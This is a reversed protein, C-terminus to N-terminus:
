KQFIIIHKFFLVKRTVEAKSWIQIAHIRIRCPLIIIKLFTSFSQATLIHDFLSQTLTAIAVIRKMKANKQYYKMFSHSHKVPTELCALVISNMLSNVFCNKNNELIQSVRFYINKHWKSCLLAFTFGIFIAPRFQM